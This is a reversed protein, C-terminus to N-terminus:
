GAAPFRGGPGGPRGPRGGSQGTGLTSLDVGLPFTAAYGDATEAVDLLLTAQYIGDTRNLTDRRGKAAYPAQAFVRDSLADDFFLQSTFVSTADPHVKFHIHVARGAYWGPYITTFTATGAEDTVQSGRLFQQGVTNFHPDSVDSYVGAADCHWVDV